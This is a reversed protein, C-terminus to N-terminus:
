KPDNVVEMILEKTSEPLDVAAIARKFNAMVDVGPSEKSLTKKVKEVFDSLLSKIEQQDDIHQRSLVKGAPEHPIVHRTLERTDTDYLYFCPEHRFNYETAERRIMPGTNLITNWKTKICFHRHIDGCLILDYEKHKEAFSRADIYDHREFVPAEAIPAHIVLINIKQKSIPPGVKESEGWRVGTISFGSVGTLPYIMGPNAEVLNVLDLRNLVQIIASADPSHFYMDHQGRVMYVPVKWTRLFSLLEVLIAWNRPRDCFDGSQLIIAGHNSAFQWVWMMKRWQASEWDDIRGTPKETSLHIDSLNIIKM